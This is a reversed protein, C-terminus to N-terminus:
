SNSAAPQAPNTAPEPPPAAPDARMFLPDGKTITAGPRLLGWACASEFTQGPEVPSSFRALLDAMKTPMAPALVVAAIRLAEAATYLIHGVLKLNAPDKALKFPETEHIYRDVANSLALGEAIARELDIAGMCSAVRAAVGGALRQPEGVEEEPDPAPCAGDFYKAIMNAVRSSANGIGNALDANYTDIFRAHAFDADTVGMPGQTLLYYRMADGGFADNYARITPLDIFNGLSKSMKTGERIWYSHAYVCKPLEEGLAMLMCPWIVAHFWLIDKAILHVDAPWYRRRGPTDPCTPITLYNFLADIWVYVRHTDDGPIYVGWDDDDPGVARSIPIDNLGTRIRGLVENRRAEPRIFHPNAEIHALLRDEYRSLRFFYNQETRKELPRGTVPSNYNNERAVNETIYEEQSADYWGEYDGLYVDGTKMLQTIFRTVGDKHRQQTTRVFDDNTYGLEAFAAQFANANIDAWEIFPKGREKAAQAVKDAHEDTGTLFFVDEGALRHFRALTDAVLTTYAHGIHPRDNVYYIPTTVYFKGPNAPTDNPM